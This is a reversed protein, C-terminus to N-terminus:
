RWSCYGWFFIFAFLILAVGAFCVVLKWTCTCGAETDVHRLINHNSVNGCDTDYCIICDNSDKTLAVGENRLHIHGEAPSSSLVLCRRAFWRLGDRNGYIAVEGDPAVTVRIKPRYTCLRSRDCDGQVGM